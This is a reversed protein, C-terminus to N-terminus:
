LHYLAVGVQCRDSVRNSELNRRLAEVSNPNWECAFVRAVGAHVLMQLTYYRYSSKPRMRPTLSLSWM